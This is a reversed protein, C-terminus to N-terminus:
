EGRKDGNEGNDACALPIDIIVTTGKGVASELRIGGGLDEAIRHCVALGLGTGMGPEKTTYFPDFVRTVDADAIGPGNDSFTVELRGDANRTRVTILGQSRDAGAPDDAKLIDVANAMVNSMIQKLQFPHARVRDDGAERRTEVRGRGEALAPGRDAVTERIVAHVSTEHRGGAGSESFSLLQRITQDIREIEYAIRNLCDRREDVSLGNSELLELYGSVISLPNGVEHAVGTALRGVSALKETKVIRDQAERIARNAQELSMIHGQLDTKNEELRKLMANLSGFLQGMENRPAEPLRPFPAEGQFRETIRLLRHIPRIVTRSLLYIGVFVLILTNLLIYLLILGESRRLNEYLPALDATICLAGRADGQKLIPAAVHLREHAFWTVGWRKGKLELCMSRGALAKRATSVAEAKFDQFLGLRFTERGRGDVMVVSSFGGVELVESALAEPVAIGGQRGRWGNPIEVQQDLALLMMRGLSIKGKMMDRESFKVMIFNILLMASLILIALHGVIGRMLSYNPLRLM